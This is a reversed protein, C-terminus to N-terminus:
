RMRVNEARGGFGVVKMEIFRRRWGKRWSSLDLKRSAYGYRRKLKSKGFTRCLALTEAHYSSCLGFHKWLEWRGNFALAHPRLPFLQIVPDIEDLLM